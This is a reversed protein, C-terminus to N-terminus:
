RAPFQPVPPRAGVAQPAHCQLCNYRTGTVEGSKTEKKYPNTHHSPPVKTARHGEGVEMGDLHCTLCDNASRTVAMGEVSHPILPPALPYPRPLVSSSGPADETYANVGPAGTQLGKGRYVKGVAAAAALAVALGACVLPLRRM